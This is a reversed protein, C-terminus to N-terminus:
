KNEVWLKNGSAVVLLKTMPGSPMGAIVTLGGLELDDFTYEAGPTSGDPNYSSPPFSGWVVIPDTSFRIITEIERV